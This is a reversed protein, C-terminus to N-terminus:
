RCGNQNGWEVHNHGFKTYNAYTPTLVLKFNACAIAKVQTAIAYYPASPNRVQAMSVAQGNYIFGGWDVAWGRAHGTITGPINGRDDRKPGCERLSAIDSTYGTVGIGKLQQSMKEMAVATDCAMTMTKGFPLATGSLSVANEIFCSTGGYTGNPVQGSSRFQVGMSQLNQICAPDSVPGTPQQLNNDMGDQDAVVEKAWSCALAFSWSGTGPGFTLNECKEKNPGKPEKEAMAEASDCEGQTMLYPKTKQCFAATAGSFNSCSIGDIMQMTPVCTKKSMDKEVTSCSSGACMYKQACTDFDDTTAYELVYGNPATQGKKGCFGGSKLFSEVGGQGVLSAGMKYANLSMSGCGGPIQSGSAVAQKTTSLMYGQQVKQWLPEVKEQVATNNKWDIASNIGDKGTWNAPNYTARSGLKSAGKKLYGMDELAEAGMQYKGIFGKKNDAQYSGSGASEFKSKLAEVDCSQESVAEGDKKAAIADDAAITASPSLGVSISLLFAMIIRDIIKV